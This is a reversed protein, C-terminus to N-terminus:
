RKGGKEFLLDEMESARAETLVGSVEEDSMNLADELRIGYRSGTDVDEASVHVIGNVDIDFSVEIDPEGGPAQRIGELMFSGLSINDGARPRQGQLVHVKVARQYDSVTTFRARANCPLTTNRPVMAVMHGGKNEVGLGLPTVDVLVMGKIEGSLIGGQVGAGRAVVEEPAVGMEPERGFIRSLQRKILPIRSSGGVLLVRHVEEARLQADKLAKRTLNITKQVYGTILEEFEQRSLTTHLHVPGHEDAAIFPVEADATRKASLEEKVRKAEQFLKQLAFRDQEVDVKDEEKLRQKLVEVLKSDFDDGGLRVDGRTACVEFVGGGANLVSVDFTGGGLDYVVVTETEDGELGYALCAATPENILRVVELGAMQAAKRTAQRRRDDYYAPVTVVAKNVKQGIHGQAIHKLKSMIYSAIQEPTYDTTHIRYKGGTGLQRKVSLVTAEPHLVAVNRAPRGVYIDGNEAIYVTSPIIREGSRDALVVPRTERFISIASNTTGFDIGLVPEKYVGM